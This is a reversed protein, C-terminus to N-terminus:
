VARLAMLGKYIHEGLSEVMLAEIRQHFAARDADRTFVFKIGMGPDEGSPDGEARTWSVEGDLVIPESLAPVSLKFLFRTGVPLPRHTKIFTQGRSINKAYDSFFTNMKKYDVPLEIPGRSKGGSDRSKSM